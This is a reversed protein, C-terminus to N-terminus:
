KAAKISGLVEKLALEAARASDRAEMMKQKKEAGNKAYYRKASERRTDLRGVSKLPKSTDRIVGTVHWPLEGNFRMGVREPALSEAVSRTAAPSGQADQPPQTSSTPAPTSGERKASSHRAQRRTINGRLKRIEEIIHVGDPPKPNKEKIYLDLHRGLSSSTFPQHCFPCNKDKPAPSKGQPTNTASGPTPAQAPEAMTLLRGLRYSTVFRIRLTSLYLEEFSCARNSLVLIYM